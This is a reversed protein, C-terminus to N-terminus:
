RSGWPLSRPWPGNAGACPKSRVSRWPCFIPWLVHSFGSYVYTMTQRLVPAESKFTLWIVGEILQQIGFLKLRKEWVFWTQYTGAPDSRWRDILNSLLDSPLPTCSQSAHSGSGGEGGSAWRFTRRPDRFDRSFPLWSTAGAPREITLAEM